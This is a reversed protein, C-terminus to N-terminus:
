KIVIDEIVDIFESLIMATAGWIFEGEVPFGPANALGRSTKIKRMEINERRLDRAVDVNIIKQVELEDPKFVPKENCFAVFPFILFNSPIVYYKSLAGLLCLSKESVGIEEQTERFATSCYDSDYNEKKGGPFSIQGSHEGEYVNRLIVPFKLRGNEEYLLILVAGRNTNEPIKNLKIAEFLPEPALKLHSPNGPLPEKLRKEIDAIEKEFKHFGKELFM